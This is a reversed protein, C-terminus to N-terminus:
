GLILDIWELEQAEWVAKEVRGVGKRYAIGEEWEVWLVNYFEFKSGKGAAKPREELHWEELGWGSYEDCAYGRSIAVLECRFHAEANSPRPTDLQPPDEAFPPRKEDSYLTGAWKGQFDRITYCDNLGNVGRSINELLSLRAQQTRCSLLRDYNPMPVHEPSCLPIPYWFEATPDSEHKYFYRCPLDARPKENGHCDFRSWGRPVDGLGQLSRERLEQLEWPARIPRPTSAICSRSYWQVLPVTIPSPVGWYASDSWKLYYMESRLRLMGRGTIWSWSPLGLDAGTLPGPGRRRIFSSYPRWLLAVDFFLVPLAYIFGGYFTKSLV